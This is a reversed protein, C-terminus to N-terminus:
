SHNWVLRYWPKSIHHLRNHFWELSSQNSLAWLFWSLFLDSESIFIQHIQSVLIAPQRCVGWFFFLLISSPSRSHRGKKSNHQPSKLFAETRGELSGMMLPVKLAKREWPRIISGFRIFKWLLELPPPATMKLGFIWTKSKPVNKLM